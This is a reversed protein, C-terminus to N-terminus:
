LSLVIQSCYFIEIKLGTCLNEKAVALFFDIVIEIEIEIETVLFMVIEIEALVSANKFRSWM